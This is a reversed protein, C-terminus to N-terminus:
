LVININHQMVTRKTFIGCSKERLLMGEFHISVQLKCGEYTEAFPVHHGREWGSVNQVYMFIGLPCSSFLLVCLSQKLLTSKCSRSKSDSLLIWTKKGGKVHETDAFM